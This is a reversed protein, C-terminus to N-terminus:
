DTSPREKSDGLADSFRLLRGSCWSRSVSLFDASESLVEHLKNIITDLKSLIVPTSINIKKLDAFKESEILRSITNCCWMLDSSTETEADNYRLLFNRVSTFIEGSMKLLESLSMVPDKLDTPTIKHPNECVSAFYSYLPQLSLWESHLSSVRKKLDQFENWRKLQFAALEQIVVDQSTSPELKIYELCQKQINSQDELSFSQDMATLRETVSSRSHIKSVNELYEHVYDDVDDLIGVDDGFDGREICTELIQTSLVAFFKCYTKPCPVSWVRSFSTSLGLNIRLEKIWMHFINKLQNDVARNYCALLPKILRDFRQEDFKRLLFGFLQALLPKPYNHFASELASSDAPLKLSKFDAGLARLNNIFITDFDIENM